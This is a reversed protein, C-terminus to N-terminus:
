AAEAKRAKALEKLDSKTAVGRMRNRQMMIDLPTAPTAKQADEELKGLFKAVANNQDTELAAIDEDYQERSYGKKDIKAEIAARKDRFKKEIKPIEIAAIAKCQESITRNEDNSVERIHTIQPIDDADALPVTVADFEAEAAEVQKKVEEETLMNEPLEWDPNDELHATMKKAEKGGLEALVEKKAELDENVSKVEESETDTENSDGSKGADSKENDATEDPANSSDKESEAAALAALEAKIIEEIMVDKNLTVDVGNEKAIDNLAPEGEREVLTLAKLEKKKELEKKREESM